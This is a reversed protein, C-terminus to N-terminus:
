PFMTRFLTRTVPALPRSPTAAISFNRAATGPPNYGPRLHRGGAEYNVGSKPLLGLEQFVEASQRGMTGSIVAQYMSM